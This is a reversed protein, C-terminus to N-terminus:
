DSKEWERLALMLARRIRVDEIEKPQSYYKTDVRIRLGGGPAGELHAIRGRLAPDEALYRQFIIDIQEVMPLDSAAGVPPKGSEKRELEGTIKETQDKLQAEYRQRELEIRFANQREEVSPAYPEGTSSTGTIPPAMGARVLTDYGDVFVVLDGVAALIRQRLNGSPVESLKEYETSNVAIVLKGMPPKRVVRFVEFDRDM